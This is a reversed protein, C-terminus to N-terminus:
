KEGLTWILSDLGRATWHAEGMRLDRKTFRFPDQQKERHTQGNSGSYPNDLMRPDNAKATSSAINERWSRNSGSKGAEPRKATYILVSM